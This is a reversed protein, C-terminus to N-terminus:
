KIIKKKDFNKFDFPSSSEELDCSCKVKENEKDYEHFVCNEQCVARNNRIYENRRNDLTIDTGSDSTATYCIDNYYGSSSNLKDLNEEKISLPIVLYAKCKDSYIMLNIKTINSSNSKTYIDFDIRPIRMNNNQIDIKKM